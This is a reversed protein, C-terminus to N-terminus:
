ALPTPKSFVKLTFGSQAYDNTAGSPHLAKAVIWCVMHRIKKGSTPKCRGM